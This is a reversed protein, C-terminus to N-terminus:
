GAHVVFGGWVSPRVILPGSRFDTVLGDSSVARILRGDHEVRWAEGAEGAVVITSEDAAYVRWGSTASLRTETADIALAVRVMQEDVAPPSGDLRRMGPTAYVGGLGALSTVDAAAAVAM